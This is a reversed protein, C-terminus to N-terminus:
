RSDRDQRVLDVGLPQDDVPQPYKGRLEAVVQEPPKWGQRLIPWGRKDVGVMRPRGAALAGAAGGEQALTGAQPAAGMVAQEVLAMLEGQLSRHHRAARERLAQAWPEPVDKISLTTM